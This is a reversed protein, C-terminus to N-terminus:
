MSAVMEQVIKGSNDSVVVWWQDYTEHAVGDAKDSMGRIVVFPVGYQSAVYGVSAGEMEVCLAGLDESLYAVAKASAVFQDGTAILGKFVDADVCVTKAAAYAKEVLVPDAAIRVEPVFDTGLVIGEDTLYGFDHFMVETGIVVDAISLSDSVAGAIGTFIISSVKFENILIATGAASLSKGVGAKCIVVDKGELQGVHYVVGGIEKAYDETSISLLYAVESDMASIIGIPRKEVVAGEIQGQAFLSGTIVLACVVVAVLKKM